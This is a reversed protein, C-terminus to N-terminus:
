EDFVPTGGDTPHGLGTFRVVAAVLTLTLTVLWGRLRDTPPPPGLVATPDLPRPPLEPYTGVPQVGVVPPKGTAARSRLGELGRTVMPGITPQPRTRQDLDRGGRARPSGARRRGRRRRGTARPSPWPRRRPRRPCACTASA